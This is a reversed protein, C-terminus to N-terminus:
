SEPAAAPEAAAPPEADGPSPSTRVVPVFAPGDPNPETTFAMSGDSSTEVTGGKLSVAATYGFAFNEEEATPRGHKERLLELCASANQAKASLYPTKGM